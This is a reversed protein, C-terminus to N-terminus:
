THQSKGRCLNRRFFTWLYRMILTFKSIDGADKIKVIFHEFSVKMPPAEFNNVVNSFAGILLDYM